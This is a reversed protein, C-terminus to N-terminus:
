AWLGHSHSPVVAHKTKCRCTRKVVKIDAHVPLVNGHKLLEVYVEVPGQELSFGDMGVKSIGTPFPHCSKKQAHTGLQGRLRSM